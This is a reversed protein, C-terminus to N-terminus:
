LTLADTSPVELSRGFSVFRGGDGRVRQRGHHVHAALELLEQPEIRRFRQWAWHRCRQPFALRYHRGEVTESTM